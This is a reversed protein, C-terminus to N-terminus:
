MGPWKSASESAWEEFRLCVVVYYQRVVIMALPYLDVAIQQVLTLGLYCGEVFDRVIGCLEQLEVHSSCFDGDFAIPTVLIFRLANTQWPPKDNARSSQWVWHEIM